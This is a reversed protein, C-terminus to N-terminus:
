TRKPLPIWSGLTKDWSEPNFKGFGSAPYLTLEGVYIKGNVIYFDTRLFPFGESLKRALALMEDLREPRPFSRERDTPYNFEFPMEQWNPSYLKKKHETFRDFDLQIIRPMGGFNLVKYDKLQEGSEDELYPEAIVRPRVKKYPWERGQLYYNTKLRQKLAQKVSTQDFAEKGRCIIVGGSDHTTKLVFQDPLLDFDIDEARDWVGLTPILYEAGVLDSIYKKAAYKDVMIPYLLNRDYLKLWQLKENFTQPNQLNLKRGFVDQYVGKLYLGDPIFAMKTSLWLIRKKANYFYNKMHM